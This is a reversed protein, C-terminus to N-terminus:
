NGERRCSRAAASIQRHFTTEITYNKKPGHVKCFIGFFSSSFDPPFMYRLDYHDALCLHKGSGRIYLKERNLLITHFLDTSCSEQCFYVRLQEDQLRYVYERYFSAGLETIRGRESYHLADSEESLRTFTATGIATASQSGKVVREFRWAGELYGLVRASVSM